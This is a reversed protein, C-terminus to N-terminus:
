HEDGAAVAPHPWGKESVDHVPDLLILDQMDTHKELVPRQFPSREMVPAVAVAPQDGALELEGDEVAVVLEERDLADLLDRVSDAIEDKSADYRAALREVIRDVHSGSTLDSWVEAGAGRLSYYSGTTLDIVIVEGDIIESIARSTNIRFRM